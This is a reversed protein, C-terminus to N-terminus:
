GNLLKIFNNLSKNIRELKNRALFKGFEFYDFMGVNEQEELITKFIRTQIVKPQDRLNMLLNGEKMLKEVSFERGNPDSWTEKLMNTKEFPNDFTKNIRTRRIGPYASQVFDSTDGRLCKCYLFYETNVYEDPYPKKDKIKFLDKIASEITIKKDTFPDYQTIHPYFTDRGKGQLQALDRDRSIIILEDLEDEPDEGYARVLGAIIDDAELDKGAMCVIGTNERIMEEFERIHELFRRHKEEDAPTQKLRRNSKYVKPSYCEDSKTYTKRWSSRDFALITQTPSFQRHFKNLTMLSMHLALEPEIQADRNGFYTRYLMNTIDAILYKM